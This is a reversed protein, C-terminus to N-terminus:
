PEVAGAHERHTDLGKLAYMSPLTASYGSARDPLCITSRQGGLPQWRERVPERWKEWGM